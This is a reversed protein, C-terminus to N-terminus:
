RYLDRLFWQPIVLRAQSLLVEPQHYEPFHSQVLAWFAKSHNPHRTHCLEHVMLYEACARPLFLLQDNLSISGSTSCSGWRTKQSRICVRRYGLGCDASVQELMPPFLRKARDRLWKRLLSVRGQYDLADIFMDAQQCQAQPDGAYAVTTASQDFPLTILRPLEISDCLRAQKQLQKRIWDAHKEVLLPVERRPFRPPIVVELGGYPRIQLRAHRIRRSVRLDWSIEESSM